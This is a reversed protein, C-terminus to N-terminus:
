WFAWTNHIFDWALMAISLLMLFQWIFVNLMIQMEGISKGLHFYNQFILEQKNLSIELKIPIPADNEVVTDGDDKKCQTFLLVSLIMLLMIKKM